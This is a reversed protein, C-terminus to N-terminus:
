FAMKESAAQVKRGDVGYIVLMDGWTRFQGRRERYIVIAEAEQPTFGLSEIQKADAKNINVKTPDEVKPLNVALYDTLINLEDRTAATRAGMRTVTAEWDEKTKAYSTFSDPNHCGACHRTLVQKGTGDPLGAASAALAGFLLCAMAAFWLRLPRTM